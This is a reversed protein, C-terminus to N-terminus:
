REVSLPAILSNLYKVSPAESIKRVRRLIGRAEDFRGLKQCLKAKLLLLRAEWGPANMTEVFEELKEMWHGSSDGVSDLSAREIEIETLNLLCIAQLIPVADVDSYQLVDELAAIGGDFSGEEKSLIGEVLQNWIFWYWAVGSKVALERSFELYYRAEDYRGLNVQAWAKMALMYSTLRRSDQIAELAAETLKLANVGDGMANYYAALYGNQTIVPLNLSERVRICALINEVASNFEGRQGISNGLRFQNQGIKYRYGLRESLETSARLLEMRRKEDSLTESIASILDAIAVQEDYKRAITLAQELLETEEEINLNFMCKIADFRLLYSKFYELNEDEKVREEIRRILKVDTDSEPFHFEVYFRWKTYVHAAIWDNPAAKIAKILAQMMDEWVVLDGRRFKCVLILPAVLDSVKGAAILKDTLYYDNIYF